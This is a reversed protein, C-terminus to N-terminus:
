KGRGSYSRTYETMYEEFCELELEKQCIPEDWADPCGNDCYEDTFNLRIIERAMEEATMNKNKDIRKM